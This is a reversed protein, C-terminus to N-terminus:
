DHFLLCYHLSFSPRYTTMLGYVPVRQAELLCCSCPSLHSQCDNQHYSLLSFPLSHFCHPLLLPGRLPLLLCRCLPLFSCRRSGYVVLQHPSSPSPSPSSYQLSFPFCSFPSYFYCLSERSYISRKLKAGARM